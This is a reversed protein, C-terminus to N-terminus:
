QNDKPIVRYGPLKEIRYMNTSNRILGLAKCAATKSEYVIGDIEVKKRNHPVKGWMGNNKGRGKECVEEPPRVGRNAAPKGWNYHNEGSVIECRREYEEPTLTDWYNRAVKSIKECTEPSHHGGSQGGTTCNYGNVMSDYEKIYQTELSNLDEKSTATSITFVEFAEWGYKKIAKAIKTRLRGKGIEYEKRIYEKLNPNTTQGIYWKGNAKCRLGYIWGYIFM